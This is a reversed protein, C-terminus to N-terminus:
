QKTELVLMPWYPHPLERVAYRERLFGEIAALHPKCRALWPMDSKTIRPYGAEMAVRDWRQLGRTLFPRIRALVAEPSLDRGERELTERVFAALSLSEVGPIWCRVEPVLDVSVLLLGSEGLAARAQAVREAPDWGQDFAAIRQHAWAGQATLVLIALAGKRRSARGFLFAVPIALFLMSGLFYGGNEYTNWWLFFATPVLVFLAVSRLLDPARRLAAWGALALPVIAGLPLLWEERWVPLFNDPNGHNQAQIDLEHEFGPRISELSGFRLWYALAIGVGFAALLVPGAGLLLGRPTFRSGRRSRAFQVLFVWGPGLTLTSQHAWYLLPFVTAVLALAWAPRTWPAALTVWAVLAVVGFVLGHLEFSTAFFWLAPALALLGIAVLAGFIQAGCRRLVLYGLALGGASPVISLFRLARGPDEGPLWSRVFKALPYYLVHVHYSRLDLVHQSYLGPGDGFFRTQFTAQYLVLAAALIALAILRDPLPRDAARSSSDM